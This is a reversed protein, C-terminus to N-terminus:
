QTVRFLSLGLLLNGTDEGLGFFSEDLFLNDSDNVFVVIDMTTGIADSPEDDPDDLTNNVATLTSTLNIALLGQSTTVTGEETYTSIFVLNGRESGEASQITCAEDLFGRQVFRWDTAGINMEYEFFTNIVEPNPSVTCGSQWDGIFSASNTMSESDDGGGGCATIASSIGFVFAFKLVTNM